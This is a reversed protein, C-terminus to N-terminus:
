GKTWEAPINIKTIRLRTLAQRHGKKTRSNKRRRLKYSILKPGKKDGLVRAVVSAGVVVPAGVLTGHSPSRLLLVRELDVISGPAGDLRDVIVEDGASVKYQKGRDEVIAFM